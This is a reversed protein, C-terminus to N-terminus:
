VIESNKIEKLIKKVNAKTPEVEYSWEVLKVNNEKCLEKKRKDREQIKIWGGEGGFFEVPEYHQKGQYEIGISESPIYIDLSQRKLWKDHYQYIADPYIKSVVEFLKRESIWKVTIVGDKVLKNYLEDKKAKWNIGKYKEKKCENSVDLYMEQFFPMLIQYLNRYLEVEDMFYGNEIFYDIKRRVDIIMYPNDRSVNYGLFHSLVDPLWPSRLAINEYCTMDAYCILSYGFLKYGGFSDGMVGSYIIHSMILIEEIKDKSFVAVFHKIDEEPFINKIEKIEDANKSVEMAIYYNSSYSEPFVFAVQEDFNIFRFQNIFDKIQSNINLKGALSIFRGTMLRNLIEEAGNTVLFKEYGKDIFDKVVRKDTKGYKPNRETVFQEWTYTSSFTIPPVGEKKLEIEIKKLDQISTKKGEKKKKYLLQYTLYEKKIKEWESDKLCYNDNDGCFFAQVKSM